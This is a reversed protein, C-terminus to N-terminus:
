SKASPTGPQGGVGAFRLSPDCESPPGHVAEVLFILPDDAVGSVIVVTDVDALGGAAKDDTASVSTAPRWAMSCSRPRRRTRRSRVVGTPSDRALAPSSGPWTGSLRPPDSRNRWGAYCPPRRLCPQVGSEGDRWPEARDRCSPVLGRLISRGAHLHAPTCSGAGLGSPQSGDPPM